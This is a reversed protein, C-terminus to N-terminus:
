WGVWGVGASSATLGSKLSSSKSNRSSIFVLPWVTSRAPARNTVPIVNSKVSLSTTESAAPSTTRITLLRSANWARKPVPREIAPSNSPWSLL